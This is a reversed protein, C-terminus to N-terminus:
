NDGHMVLFNDKSLFELNLKLSGGTGLLKEEPSLIIKKFYDQGRLFDEIMSAKYFTNIVIKEFELNILKRIIIDLLPQNKVPLLVKPIDRTIKELRSGVGAALILADM